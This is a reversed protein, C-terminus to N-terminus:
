SRRLVERKQVNEVSCARDVLSLSCTWGARRLGDRFVSAKHSKGGWVRDGTTYFNGFEAPVKPFFLAGIINRFAVILEDDRKAGYAKM